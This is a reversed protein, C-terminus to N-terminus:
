ITEARGTLTDVNDLELQTAFDDVCKLKKAVSDILTFDADPHTIALPIGPFGGGTGM